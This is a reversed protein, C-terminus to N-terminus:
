QLYSDLPEGLIGEITQVLQNTKQLVNTDDADLLEALFPTTQAVFPQMAEAQTSWLEDLVVLAAAKVSSAGSRTKRLLADNLEQLSDEDSVTQALAAVAPALLAQEEGDDEGNACVQVQGVLAASIKSLRTPNWFNGEDYQCTLEISTIVEHWLAADELDGAAFGNLLEITHDLVTAYYTTFLSRLQTLLTNVLKFLLTRRSRLAPASIPLDDEALELVAWDFIHYFLPRFASENLQLAMEVFGQLATEEIENIQDPELKASRLRRTDFITLFFRFMAKYVNAIAPRDLSTIIRRLCEVVSVLSEVHSARAHETWLSQLVDLLKDVPVAKVIADYLSNLPGEVSEFAPEDLIDLVEAHVLTALIAQVHSVVFTPLTLVVSSLLGFAGALVTGSGYTSSNQIISVAFNVIIALHPILRAGIVRVIRSVASLISARLANDLKPAKGLTLLNPVAAVLAPHLANLKAVTAAKISSLAEGLAASPGSAHESAKVIKLAAETVSVVLAESALKDEIAMTPFRSAFLALGTRQTEKAPDAVLVGVLRMFGASSIHQLLTELAEHSVFRVAEDDVLALKLTERVCTELRQDIAARTKAKKVKALRTRFTPAAAASIVLRLLACSQQAPGAKRDSHERLARDARDLFVSERAELANVNRHQWLRVIEEFIQGFALVQKDVSFSMLLHLPLSISEAFSESTQKTVKHSSRDTLLMCVAALFDQPGLVDLLSEFFIQRRHRPIHTAADTFIRLFSRGQKLLDFHGGNATASRLTQVYAPIISQLTKQVIEFSYTDDRQLMSSGVFTFIPMVNHLVLDSNIAAIRNLLTLAQQFTQPNQSVKITSIITDVRISQVVGAAQESSKPLSQLLATLTLQMLHDSNAAANASLEVATRLTEFLESVLIAIGSINRAALTDLIVALTSSARSLGDEASMSTRARKAERRDGVSLGTLKSRAQALVPAFLPAPVPLDRLCQRLLVTQAVQADNLLGVIHQVLEQALDPRLGKLFVGTVANCACQQILASSSSLSELLLAWSGNNKDEVTPAATADYSNFLLRIFTREDEPVTADDGSSAVKEGTGQLVYQRLVPVLTRLKAPHPLYKLSQLLGIGALRSPWAVVHALLFSVIAQKYEAEKRKDSQTIKLATAHWIALNGEDTVFSDRESLLATLYKCVDAYHLYVLDKSSAGYITDYGYESFEVQASAAQDRASAIIELPRLAAQRIEKHENQLALLLAPVLTQFDQIKIKGSGESLVQPALVVSADQLASKRIRLVSYQQGAEGNHGPLVKALIEPNATWTSALFTLTSEGLNSWLLRKLEESTKPGFHTSGLHAYLRMGSLVPSSSSGIPLLEADDEGRLPLKNLLVAFLVSFLRRATREHGPKSYMADGLSAVLKPASTSASELDELHDEISVEPSASLRLGATVLDALLVTQDQDASAVLRVLVLLALVRSSAQASSLNAATVNAKAVLFDVVAVFQASDKIKLTEAALVAAIRENYAHHEKRAAGIRLGSLGKQLANLSAAWIQAESGDAEKPTKPLSAAALAGAVADATKRAAKTQLLRGWLAEKVLRPVILAYERALLHDLLFRLHAEVAKRSLGAGSGSSGPGNSNLADLALEAAVRAGLVAVVQDPQAYVAALVNADEESLASIRAHLANVAFSDSSPLTGDSLAAYLSKVALLRQTPSPSHITLWLTATADDKSSSSSRSAAGSSRADYSKTIVAKLVSWLAAEADKNEGVGSNVLKVAEDFVQPYRERLDGLLRMRTVDKTRAEAEYRLLLLYRAAELRLDDGLSPSLLMTGLSEVVADPSGTASGAGPRMISALIEQVLPTVETGRESAEAVSEAFRPLRLLTQSAEASILAAADREASDIPLLPSPFREDSIQHTFLAICASILPRIAQEDADQPQPQAPAVISGITARVAEASFPFCTGLAAIVMLAATRLESNDEGPVLSACRVTIPLILNLHIQADDLRNEAGRRKGKRNHSASALGAGGFETSAAGSGLDAWRLSFQILTAAWFSILTRHPQFGSAKPTIILSILWRLLENSTSLNPSALLASILLPSPLPVEQKKCPQMFALFPHQEINCIKLIRAFHPTTHFPMFAGLLLPVNFEHIRFRRVLWEICKAVSRGTIGHAVRALFLALAQDVKANEERTLVSRDRTKSSEGFLLERGAAGLEDVAWASSDYWRDYAALEELGTRALAHVTNLDQAAATKPPFLYSATHQAGFSSGLTALRPANVSRIGALQSALASTM